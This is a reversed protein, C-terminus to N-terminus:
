YQDKDSYGVYQSLELQPLFTRTASTICNPHSGSHDDFCTGCDHMDKPMEPAWEHM